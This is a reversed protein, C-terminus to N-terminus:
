VQAAYHSSYETQIDGEVVAKEFFTCKYTIKIEEQLSKAKEVTMPGAM